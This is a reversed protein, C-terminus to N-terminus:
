TAKPNEGCIPCDMSVGEGAEIKRAGGCWPCSEGPRLLPVLLGPAGGRVDTSIARRAGDHFHRSVIQVGERSGYITGVVEGERVVEVIVEGGRDPHLHPRARLRLVSRPALASPDDPM